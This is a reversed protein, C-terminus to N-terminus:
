QSGLKRLLRPTLWWNLLGASQPPFEEFTILCCGGKRLGLNASLSAGILESALAGLSPAHGVILVRSREAHQALFSTLKQATLMGPALAACHEVPAAPAIEGGVIEATEVARRLPSSVVWDLEVGARELGQAIARMKLKGEPTLPRKSDDSASHDDLDAAIGHRMLYLEYPREKGGKSQSKKAM